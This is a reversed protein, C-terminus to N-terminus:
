NNEVQRLFGISTGSYLTRSTPVTPKGNIVVQNRYALTMIWEAIEVVSREQALYCAILTPAYYEVLARREINTACDIRGHVIRLVKLLNEGNDGPDLNEVLEDDDFDLIVETPAEQNGENVRFGFATPKAEALIEMAGLLGPGQALYLAAVLDDIELFNRGVAELRARLSSECMGMMAEREKGYNVSILQLIGSVEETFCLEDEESEDEAVEAEVAFRLMTEDWGVPLENEKM